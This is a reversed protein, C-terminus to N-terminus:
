GAVVLTTKNNFYPPFLTKIGTRPTIKQRRRASSILPLCGATNFVKNGGSKGLLVVKTARNNCVQELRIVRNM